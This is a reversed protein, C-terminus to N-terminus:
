GLARASLTVGVAGRNRFAQWYESQEPDAVCRFRSAKALARVKKATAPKDMCVYCILLGLSVKFERWRVTVPSSIEGEVDGVEVVDCTECCSQNHCIACQQSLDCVGCEECREPIPDALYAWIERFPCDALRLLVDKETCRWRWQDQSVRSTHEEDESDGSIYWRRSRVRSGTVAEVDREEAVAAIQQDGEELRDYSESSSESIEQPEEEEAVAARQGGSADADTDPLRARSQPVTSMMAHLMRCAVLNSAFSRAAIM